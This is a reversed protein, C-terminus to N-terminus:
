KLLCSPIFLGHRPAELFTQNPAPGLPRSNKALYKAAIICGRATSVTSLEPAQPKGPAAEVRRKKSGKNRCSNQRPHFDLPRCKGRDVCEVCLSM